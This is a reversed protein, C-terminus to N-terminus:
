ILTVPLSSNRKHATSSMLCLKFLGARVGPASASGGALALLASGPSHLLLWLVPLAEGGVRRGGGVERGLGGRQDEGAGLGRLLAQSLVLADDVRDAQGGAGFRQGQDGLRPSLGRGVGEGGHGLGQGEGQAGGGRVGGEGRLAHPGGAAAQRLLGEHLGGM